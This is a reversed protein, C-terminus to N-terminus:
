QKDRVARKFYAREYEVAVFEWGDQAERDLLAVRDATLMVLGGPETMPVIKHEYRM